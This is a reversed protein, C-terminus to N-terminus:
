GNSTGGPGSNKIAQAFKVGFAEGAELAKAGPNGPFVLNDTIEWQLPEVMKKFMAQGGGSWGYSGFYATKRDAIHKADIVELVAAMAPFLRGEYTPAGVLVGRGALLAPLMYSVHTHAIDFVKLPVGASAVGRAVATMMTETAGYMTGYLLTIEPKAGGLSYGSWQKYLEIIRQPKGRWILGHSPAVVRIPLAALKEIAKLVMRSYKVVINAFYREAEREYYEVSEYDDDFIAGDLAGFGGFGDCSFLIEGPTVWTMMTEPWHVFPTEFFKLEHKGLSVTEGDRVARIRETIGYFSELLPRAKETCLLVARPAARAFEKLVGTHDPEMHNLVIFDLAAADALSHIRRLLDEAKTAKALDVLATKEDQILYANYSVGEGSIPWMGEFFDTTRDNVGIWHIGPAIEVTESM